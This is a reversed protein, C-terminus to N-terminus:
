SSRTKFTSYLQWLGNILGRLPSANLAALAAVKPSGRLRGVIAPAGRELSQEIQRVVAPDIRRGAQSAELLAYIFVNRHYTLLFEPGDAAVVAASEPDDM